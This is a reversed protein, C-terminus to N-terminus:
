MALLAGHVGRGLCGGPRGGHLGHGPMMRGCDPLIGVVFGALVLPCVQVSSQGSRESPRLWLPLSFETYSAAELVGAGGGARGVRDGEVSCRSVGVLLM